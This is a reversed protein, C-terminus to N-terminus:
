AGRGEPQTALQGAVELRGWRWLGEVCKGAFYFYLAAMLWRDLAVFTACGIVNGALWYYFGQRKRRSNFEQGIISLVVFILEAISRRDLGALLGLVQSLTESLM